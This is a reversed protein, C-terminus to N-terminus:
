EGEITVIATDTATQSIDLTFFPSLTQELDNSIHLVKKRHVVVLVVIIHKDTVDADYSLFATTIFSEYYVDLPAPIMGTFKGLPLVRCQTPDTGPKYPSYKSPIQPYQAAHKTQM